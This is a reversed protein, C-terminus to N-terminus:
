TPVETKKQFRAAATTGRRACSIRFNAFALWRKQFFGGDPLRFVVKIIAHPAANALHDAFKKPKARDQPGFGSKEAAWFFVAAGAFSGAAKGFTPGSGCRLAARRAAFFPLKQPKWAKSCSNGVPQRGTHTKGEMRAPGFAKKLVPPLKTAFTRLFTNGAVAFCSIILDLRKECFFTEDVIAIRCFSSKKLVLCFRGGLPLGKRACRHSRRLPSKFAIKKNSSTIYNRPHDSM